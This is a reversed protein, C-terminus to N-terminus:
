NKNNKNVPNNMIGYDIHISINASHNGKVWEILQPTSGASSCIEHQFGGGVMNIKEKIM